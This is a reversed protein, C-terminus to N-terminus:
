HVSRSQAPSDQRLSCLAPDRVHLYNHEASPARLRAEAVPRSRGFVSVVSYSQGFVAHGQM